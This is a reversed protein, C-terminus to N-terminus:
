TASLTSEVAGPSQKDNCLVPSLYCLNCVLEQGRNGANERKRQSVIRKRYFTPRSPAFCISKKCIPVFQCFETFDIKPIKTHVWPGNHRFISPDFGPSKHSQCQCLNWTETLHELWEALYWLNHLIMVIICKASKVKEDSTLKSFLRLIM